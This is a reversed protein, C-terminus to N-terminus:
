FEINEKVKLELKKLLNSNVGKCRFFSLVKSLDIIGDRRSNMESYDKCGVTITARKVVVRDDKDFGDYKIYVPIALYKSKLYFLFQPYAEHVDTSYGGECYSFGGLNRSRTRIEFKTALSFDGSEFFTGSPYINVTLPFDVERLLDIESKLAGLEKTKKTLYSKLSLDPM